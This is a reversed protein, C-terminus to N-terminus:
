DWQVSESNRYLPPTTTTSGNSNKVATFQGEVRSLEGAVFFLSYCVAIVTLLFTFAAAVSQSWAQLRCSYFLSRAPAQIQDIRLKTGWPSGRRSCKTPPNEECPKSGHLEPIECLNVEISISCGNDTTSAMHWAAIRCSVRVSQM